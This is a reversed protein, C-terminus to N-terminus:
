QPRFAGGVADCAKTGPHYHRRIQRLYADNRMESDQRGAGLAQLYISEFLFLFARNELKCCIRTKGNNV